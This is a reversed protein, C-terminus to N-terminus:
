ISATMSETYANEANLHAIVAPNNRDRFWAYEDIVTTGHLTDVKPVKAAVPPTNRQASLPMTALLTLLTFAQTARQLPRSM